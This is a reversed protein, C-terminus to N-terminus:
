QQIFIANTFAENGLICMGNRIASMQANSNVFKPCCFLTYLGKVKKDFNETGLTLVSQQFGNIKKHSM